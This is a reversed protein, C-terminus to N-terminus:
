RIVRLKHRTAYASAKVVHGVPVEGERALRALGDEIVIPSGTELPEDMRAIVSITPGAAPPPPPIIPPEAERYIPMPAPKDCRLALYVCLAAFLVLVFLTCGLAEM